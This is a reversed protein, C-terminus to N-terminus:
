RLFHYQHYQLILSIVSIVLSAIAFLNSRFANKKAQDAEQQALAANKEAANAQRIAAEAADILHEKQEYRQAYEIGAVTLEYDMTLEEIWGQSRAIEIGDELGLLLLDPFLSEDLPKSFRVAEMRNKGNKIRQRFTHYLNFLLTEAAISVNKPMFILGKQKETYCLLFVFPIRFHLFCYQDRQYARHRSHKGATGSAVSHTLADSTVKAAAQVARYRHVAVGALLDFFPVALKINGLVIVLYKEIQVILADDNM